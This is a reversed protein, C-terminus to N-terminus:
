FSSHRSKTWRSLLSSNCTRWEFNRQFLRTDLKANWNRQGDIIYSLLDGGDCKETVVFILDNQQFIEHFRIIHEHNVIQIIALEREVHQLLNRHVLDAHSMVKVAYVRGSSRDTASLVVSNAGQGIVSRFTYNGVQQPVVLSVFAETEAELM